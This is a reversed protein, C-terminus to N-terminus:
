KWASFFFEEVAVTFGPVILSPLTAKGRFVGQSQYEGRDLQLVEVTRSNPILSGTNPYARALM